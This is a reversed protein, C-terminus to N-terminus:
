HTRTVVIGEAKLLEIVSQKGALHGSGVAIMFNGPDKLIRQIDGVWNENRKYLLKDALEPFGVLEENIMIGLKDADGNIWLETMESMVTEIQDAENLADRLFKIQDEEKLSAFVSIQFEATELGDIMKGETKAFETLVAEVGVKDDYGTKIYQLVTYTLGAFWPRFRNLAQAPVGFSALGAVLTDFDEEGIKDKLNEDAPLLGYKPVLSQMVQDSSQEPSLELYLKDAAKLAVTIDENMWVTGPKLIHVTGLINIVTDDDRVQWMAVQDDAFLPITVFTLLSAASLIKRFM